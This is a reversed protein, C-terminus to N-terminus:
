ASQRSTARPQKQKTRRVTSRTPKAKLDKNSMDTLCKLLGARNKALIMWRPFHEVSSREAAKRERNGSIWSILFVLHRRNRAWLRHGRFSASYWLEYNDSEDLPVDRFFGCTECVVRRVSMKFFIERYTSRTGNRLMHAIARGSCQPCKINYIVNTM